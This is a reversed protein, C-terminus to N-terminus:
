DKLDSILNSYGFGRYLRNVMNKEKMNETTRIESVTMKAENIHQYNKSEPRIQNIRQSEGHMNAIARYEGKLATVNKLIVNPLCVIRNNATKKYHSLFCVFHYMYTSTDRVQISGKRSFFM